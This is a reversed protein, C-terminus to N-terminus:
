ETLKQMLNLSLIDANSNRQAARTSLTETERSHSSQNKWPSSYIIHMNFHIGDEIPFLMDQSPTNNKKIM